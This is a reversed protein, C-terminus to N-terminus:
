KNLETKINEILPDAQEMMNSIDEYIFGKETMLSKLGDIDSQVQAYRTEHASSIWRDAATKWLRM